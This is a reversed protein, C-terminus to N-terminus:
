FNEDFDLRIVDKWETIISASLLTGSLLIGVICVVAKTFIDM